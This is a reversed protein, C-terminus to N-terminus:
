RIKGSLARLKQKEAEDTKVFEVPRTSSVEGMTEKFKEIMEKVGKGGMSSQHVPVARLSEFAILREIQSDM